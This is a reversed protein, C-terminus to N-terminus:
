LGLQIALLCILLVFTREAVHDLKHYLTSILIILKQVVATVVTAINYNIKNQM